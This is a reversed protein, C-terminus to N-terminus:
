RPLRPAILRHVKLSLGLRERDECLTPDLGTLDRIRELRYAITHRHAFVAAATASMNCNENFYAQLTRVLETSYQDDYRVLPAVTAEYFARMEEPHSALVRFLLKYTDGGIEDAIPVESQRLVDLVLEAEQAARGLEAPDSYFGSLGVIGLRRLRTALRRASALTAAPAGAAGTAPLLAYIRAPGDGAPDLPQALAGPHEEAITALVLQPRDRALEAGLVVAGRSLDCGLRAARRLIEARDLDEGSCLWEVFSARLNHEVADKAEEIALKTMTATAALHLFETAEPRPVAGTRLLAVVGVTEDGLRIPVETVLDAPVMAPRGRGREAVWRSLAGHEQEERPAIATGLAPVAIAVAGGAGAAALEAVRPLGDGRVVAETMAQHAERLRAVLAWAAESAYPDTERSSSISM